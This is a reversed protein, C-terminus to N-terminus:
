KFAEKIESKTYHICGFGPGTFLINFGQGEKNINVIGLEDVGIQQEQANAKMKPNLCYGRTINGNLPNHYQCSGCNLIVQKKM